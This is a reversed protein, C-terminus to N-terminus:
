QDIQLSLKVPFCTDKGMKFQFTMDGYYRETIQRIIDYGMSSGEGGPNTTFFLDFM